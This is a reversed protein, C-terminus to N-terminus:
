AGAVKTSLPFWDSCYKRVNYEYLLFFLYFYKRRMIQSNRLSM